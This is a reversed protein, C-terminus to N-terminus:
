GASSVACKLPLNDKGNNNLKLHGAQAPHLTAFARHGLGALSYSSPSEQGAM